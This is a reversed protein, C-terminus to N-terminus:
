VASTPHGCLLGDYIRRSEQRKRHEIQTHPQKCIVKPISVVSARPPWNNMFTTWLQLPPKTFPKSRSPFNADPM